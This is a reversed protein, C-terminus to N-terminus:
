QNIHTIKRVRENIVDAHPKDRAEHAVKISGAMSLAKRSFAKIRNYYTKQCIGLKDAQRKVHDAQKIYYLSFCAFGDKFERMDALMHIAMNFFQM